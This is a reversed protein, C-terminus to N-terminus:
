KRIYISHDLMAFTLADLDELKALAVYDTAQPINVHIESITEKGCNPNVCDWGVEKLGLYPVMECGCKPCNM